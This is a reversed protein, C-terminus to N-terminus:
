NWNQRNRFNRPSEGHDRKFEASFTLANDYGVQAAIEKISLDPNNLLLNAALRMRLNRLM